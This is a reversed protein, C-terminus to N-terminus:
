AKQVTMRMLMWDKSQKGETKASHLLPVMSAPDIFVLEGQFIPSFTDMSLAMGNLAWEDLLLYGEELSVDPQGLLNNKGLRFTLNFNRKVPVRTLADILVGKIQPSLANNGTEVRIRVGLRKGNVGLKPRLLVEQVPSETYEETAEKWDADSEEQDTRYDVHGIINQSEDLGKTILKVSKYLKWVDSLGASAWSMAVAGEHTFRYNSDQTPDLTESPFPLSYIDKGAAFWLRDPTNGPITQFSGARIRRGLISRYLECWGTENWCLIQSYGTSGADLGGFIRGPYSILFSIPGQRGAPLGEDLDPGFEDLTGQYYREMTVQLTFFLYLSQVTHARGNNQSAVNQMERLPVPNPIDNVMEFFANELFVWLDEPEGYEELGTIKAFGDGISKHVTFSLNTGWAVSDAKHVSVGNTAEINNGKWIKVGATTDNVARMLFAKNTGDDAWEAATSDYWVGASIWERHRRINAADGMAFYVVGNNVLVDTVPNTSFGHGTLELWVDLGLIAYETTTDHEILWASDMTADTGSNATIKRWPTDEDSGKGAVILVVGGVLGNTPWSATADILKTLNGTNPDAAGHYGNRWLQCATGDDPRTVAYKSRRYDYFYVRWYPSDTPAVKYYLDVASATWTTGDSSEKSTGAAAECAVEWHDQDDDTAAGYVKIWYTTGSTVAQNGMYCHQWESLIDIVASAALTKTKLVTGPKGADNDCLEVTFLGPTGRRRLLIQTYVITVSSTPSWSVALYRRAGPILAVWKVSGPHKFWMPRYGTSLKEQPGLFWKNGYVTNARFGDLYRTMDTEIDRQGRGGSFDDQPIPTWPPEFDAYKTNGQATKLATPPTSGISIGRIDAKGEGDCLVLGLARKSEDELRVHHTQNRERPGVVIKGM